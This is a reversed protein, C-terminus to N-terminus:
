RGASRLPTREAEPIRGIGMTAKLVADLKAHMADCRGYLTTPEPGYGLRRWVGAVVNKTVGLQKAVAGQSKGAGLM